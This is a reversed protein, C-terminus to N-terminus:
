RDIMVVIMADRKIPKSHEPVTEHTRWDVIFESRTQFYRYHVVQTDCRFRPPFTCNSSM